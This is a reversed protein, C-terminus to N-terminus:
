VATWWARLASATRWNRYEKFRRWARRTVKKPSFNKSRSKPRTSLRATPSVPKRIRSLRAAPLILKGQHDRRAELGPQQIGISARRPAFVGSKEARGPRTGLSDSVQKGRLQNVYWDSSAVVWEGAPVQNDRIHGAIIDLLEAISTAEALQVKKMGLGGSIIHIHTDILGPAVTRKKLDIIKTKPGALKLIQESAGLTSIREGQIAVASATALKDDLTIINGNHLILDPAQARVPSSFWLLFLLFLSIVNLRHIM